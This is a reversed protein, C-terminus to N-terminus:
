AVVASLSFKLAEKTGTPMGRSVPIRVTACPQFCSHVHSEANTTQVDAIICLPVKFYKFLINDPSSFTKHMYGSAWLVEEAFLCLMFISNHSTYRM